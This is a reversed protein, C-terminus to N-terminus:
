RVHEEKLIKGTAPEVTLELGDFNFLIVNDDRQGIYTYPSEDYVHEKKEIQWLIKGDYSVGFVNENFHKDSPSNLRVVVADDFAVIDAILYDFTVTKGSDLILKEDKIVFEVTNKNM